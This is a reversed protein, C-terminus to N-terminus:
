IFNLKIKGLKGFDACINDGKKIPIAPTCTGTSIYDNKNLNKGKSALKNILWRLSNIPNNLVKNSNGTYTIKDNIYVLVPHDNFNFLNLNNTENGHIWYANAANDAIINNIGVKTWDQFRSDVIEISPLVLDICKYITELSYPAKSLDLKKKIKFSFEPEMFPKVFLNSNLTCNSNSSYHLFINGYFPESVNIQKQAEENTCGIKKGIVINKQNEILYKNVLINQIAYAENNNKPSCEKPLKTIRKINIRSNFLIDAAKNLNDINM